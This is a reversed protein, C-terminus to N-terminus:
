MQREDAAEARELAERDDEDAVAASYEVDVGASQELDTKTLGDPHEENNYKERKM